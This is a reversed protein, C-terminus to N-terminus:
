SFSSEVHIVIINVYMNISISWKTTKEMDDFFLSEAELSKWWFKMSDEKLQKKRFINEDETKISRKEWLKKKKLSSKFIMSAVFFFDKQHFFPFYFLINWLQTLFFINEKAIISLKIVKVWKLSALLSTCNFNPTWSWSQNLFIRGCSVGSNRLKQNRWLYQKLM